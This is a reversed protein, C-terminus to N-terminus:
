RRGDSGGDVLSQRRRAAQHGPGDRRPDFPLLAPRPGPRFCREQRGVQGPLRDAFSPSYFPPRPTLRDRRAVLLFPTESLSPVPVCRRRAPHGNSPSRPLPRRHGVQPQVARALGRAWRVPRLRVSQLRWFADGPQPLLRRAPSAPTFRDLLSSHPSARWRTQEAVRRALFAGFDNTSVMGCELERAVYMAEKKDRGYVAAGLSDMVFVGPRSTLSSFPAGRTPLPGSSRACGYRSANAIAIAEDVTDFPILLMIPGFVEETALASEPDVNTLLTPQFFAGVGDERPQRAGGCILEAGAEVALEVRRELDDFRADSIMSGCDVATEGGALSSALRLGDVRAKLAPVLTPLLSRHVIFRETAICGQGVSQFVSRMFTSEFAELDASALVIAPDKGGLEM